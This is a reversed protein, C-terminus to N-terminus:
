AKEEFTGRSTNGYARKEMTPGLYNGESPSSGGLWVKEPRGKGKQKNQIGGPERTVRKKSGLKQSGQFSQELFNGDRLALKKLAREKGQREGEDV